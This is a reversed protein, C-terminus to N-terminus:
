APWGIKMLLWEFCTPQYRVYWGPPITISEPSAIGMFWRIYKFTDQNQLLQGVKLCVYQNGIILKLIDRVYNEVLTLSVGFLSKEVCIASAMELLNMLVELKEAELDISQQSPQPRSPPISNIYEYLSTQINSMLNSATAVSANLNGRRFTKWAILLGIVAIFLMWSAFVDPRQCAGCAVDASIM